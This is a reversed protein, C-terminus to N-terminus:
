VNISQNLHEERKLRRAERAKELKDTIKLYSNLNYMVLLLLGIFGTGNLVLNMFEEMMSEPNMRFSIAFLSAVIVALNTIIIDKSRAKYYKYKIRREDSKDLRIRCYEWHQNLITMLMILVSAIIAYLM